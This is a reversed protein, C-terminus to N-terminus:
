SEQFDYFQELLMLTAESIPASFLLDGDLSYQFFMEQAGLIIALEENPQLEGSESKPPILVRRVLQPSQPYEAFFPRQVQAFEHTHRTPNQVVWDAAQSLRDAHSSYAPEDRTLYASIISDIPDLYETSNRIIKRILRDHFPAEVLISLDSNSIFDDDLAYIGDLVIIPSPSFQTFGGHHKTIQSYWPLDIVEGNQLRLLDLKLRELDYVKPDLGALYPMGPIGSNHNLPGADKGLLYNDIELVQATKGITDVLQRSITSKGAASQGAINIQMASHSSMFTEIKRTAQEFFQDKSIEKGQGHFQPREIM